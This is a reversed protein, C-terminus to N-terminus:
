DIKRVKDEDLIYCSLESDWGEHLNLEKVWKGIEIHQFGSQQAVAEALTTKGTGPTGTILINPKRSM